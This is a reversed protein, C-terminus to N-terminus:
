KQKEQIEPRIITLYQNTSGDLVTTPPQHEVQFGWFEAVPIIFGAFRELVYPDGKLKVELRNKYKDKNM